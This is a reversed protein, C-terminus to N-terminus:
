KDPCHSAKSVYLQLDARKIIDFHTKDTDAFESVGYSFGSNPTVQDMEARVMEVLDNVLIYVGRAQTNPCILLFEDGGWRGFVDVSRIRRRVGSAFAQLIKDGTHHGLTDNIEKFRNLDFLAVSFINRSRSSRSFENALVAELKYRNCVRTLSDIEAMFRLEQKRCLLELDTEISTRFEYILKRFDDRYTNTKSDLVCITGFFEEDPWKLPLGYYSIMNLKVDPNDQWAADALANHIVLETNTGIVTECYLGSGLSDSGGTEYPNEPNRSKTFVQMADPTIEMILAAPVNLINAILDLIRQWKEMVDRLVQPKDTDSISVITKRGQKRLLVDTNRRM